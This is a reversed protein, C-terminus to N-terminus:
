CALHVAVLSSSCATNISLSPGTFNFVYSIRNAAVSSLNGTVAYGNTTRAAAMMKYYDSGAIGVFVGTTSGSLKQPVLGADELAEWTVELLLRQQPDISGAEQPAIGFFQPEFQDVQELFGGQILRSQSSTPDLNFCSHLNQRESSIPAIADMKNCILHWFAQPNTAGPFRSGMGIVAIPEVNM